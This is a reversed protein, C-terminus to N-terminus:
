RTGLEKEIASLEKELNEDDITRAAEDEFDEETPVDPEATAEPQAAAGADVPQTPAPPTPAPEAGGKDDKKKGCGVSMAGALLIALLTKM